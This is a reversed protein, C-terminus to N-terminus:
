MPRVQKLLGVRLRRANVARTLMADAADPPIAGIERALEILEITEILSGFAIGLHRAYTRSDGFSYGEAINLPVSLSSRQAQAFLAAAWPRWHSRCAYLVLVSLQRAEQWARLNRHDRM